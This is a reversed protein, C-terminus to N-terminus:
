LRDGPSLRRHADRAREDAVSAGYRSLMARSRWGALRMLDGEQGGEALWNSAFTHRLQHPHLGQIGAAEGRARVLNRIGTEALRGQKGLWVSDLYAQRHNSRIRLYRDLAVASRRGFPCARPRRGKGLVLAVNQELDLDALNLRALEQRRMGTDIFLRLIAADRRSDFDRGKDVLKLLRKLSDEDVVAVPTEPVIPPRMNRMPSETIEGEEVMWGFFSQLARYRNSATAPKFRELLHAIFAEVHERHIADAATPMGSADLFDAFREIASTYVDITSKAKNGALLSRKFSTGLTRVHNMEAVLPRRM